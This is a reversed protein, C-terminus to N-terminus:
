ERVQHGVIACAPQWTSHPAIGPIETSPGMDGEREKIIVKDRYRNISLSRSIKNEYSFNHALSVKTEHYSNTMDLGLSAM